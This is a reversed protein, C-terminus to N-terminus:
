KADESEPPLIKVVGNFSLKIEDGLKLGKANLWLKPLSVCVSNGAGILKRDIVYETM